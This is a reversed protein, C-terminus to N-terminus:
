VYHDYIVRAVHEFRILGIGPLKIFIGTIGDDVKEWVNRAAGPWHFTKFRTGSEGYGGSPTEIKLKMVEKAVSKADVAVVVSAVSPLPM